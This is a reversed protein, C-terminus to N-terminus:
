SATSTPVSTCLGYKYVNISGLFRKRPISERLRQLRARRYLLYPQRVTGGPQPDIGPSRLLNVFVPEPLYLLGYNFPIGRKIERIPKEKSSICLPRALSFYANYLYPLPDAWTQVGQRGGGGGGGPSYKAHLFAQVM